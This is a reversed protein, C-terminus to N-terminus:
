LTGSFGTPLRTPSVIGVICDPFSRTHFTETGVSVLRPLLWDLSSSCLTDLVLECIQGNWAERNALDDLTRSDPRTDRQLIPLRGRDTHFQANRSKDALYVGLGMVACRSAAERRTGLAYKAMERGSVRGVLVTVPRLTLLLAPLVLQSLLGMVAELEYLTATDRYLGLHRHHLPGRENDYLGHEL